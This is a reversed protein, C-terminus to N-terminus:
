ERVLGKAKWYDFAEQSNNKALVPDTLVLEGFYAWAEQPSQAAEKGLNKKKVFEKRWIKEWHQSESIYRLGHDIAHCFEHAYMEALTVNDAEGTERGGNLYIRCEEYNYCGISEENRDLHKTAKLFADHSEYFSVRKVTKLSLYIARDSMGDLVKQASKRFLTYREPNVEKIPELGSEVISAAIENMRKRPMKKGAKLVETIHLNTGPGAWQGDNDPQGREQHKWHDSTYRDPGIVLARGISRFLRSRVSYVGEHAGASPQQYRQVRGRETFQEPSYEPVDDRSASGGLWWGSIVAFSHCQVTIRRLQGCVLPSSAM